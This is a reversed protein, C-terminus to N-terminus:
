TGQHHTLNESAAMQLLPNLSLGQAEAEAKLKALLQVRLRIAKVVTIPANERTKPRGRQIRIPSALREKGVFAREAWAADAVQRGKLVELPEGPVSAKLFANRTM